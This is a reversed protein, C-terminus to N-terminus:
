IHSKWFKGFHAWFNYQCWSPTKKAMNPSAQVIFNTHPRWVHWKNQGTFLSNGQSNDIKEHHKFIYFMLKKDQIQMRVLSISRRPPATVTDWGLFRRDMFKWLRSHIKLLTRRKWFWKWCKGFIEKQIRFKHSFIKTEIRQIVVSYLWAPLMKVRWSPNFTISLKYKKFNTLLNFVTFTIRVEYICMCSM